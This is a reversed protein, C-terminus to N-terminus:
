ASVAAMFAALTPAHLRGDMRVGTCLDLGHPQVTAIAEVVNHVRLGGALWLPLPFVADRICRALAQALAAAGTVHVVQVLEVGPVRARLRQLEPLPVRDVLQLTTTGAAAHQAAIGDATTCATLLFSRVPEGRLAAAVRAVTTDDIVGPGSPMASVLGIAAAGHTVALRAEAEDAICCIKVRPPPSPAMKSQLRSRPNTHM